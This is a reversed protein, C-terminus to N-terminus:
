PKQIGEVPADVTESGQDGGKADVGRPMIMSSSRRMQTTTSGSSPPAQM